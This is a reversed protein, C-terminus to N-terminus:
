SIGHDHGEDLCQYTCNPAINRRLFSGSGGADHFGTALDKSVGDYRYRRGNHFTVTLTGAKEDYAHDTVHNPRQKPKPKKM